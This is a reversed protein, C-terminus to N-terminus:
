NDANSEIAKQINKKAEAVRAEVTDLGSRIIEYGGLRLDVLFPELAYTTYVGDALIDPDQESPPGAPGIRQVGKKKWERWINEFAETAETLREDVIKAVTEGNWKIEIM